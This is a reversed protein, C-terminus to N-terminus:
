FNLGRGWKLLVMQILLNMFSISNYLEHPNFRIMDYILLYISGLFFFSRYGLIIRILM